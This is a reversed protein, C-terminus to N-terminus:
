IAAEPYKLVAQKYGDSARIGQKLAEISVSYNQRLDLIWSLQTPVSNVLASISFTIEMTESSPPVYKWIGKYSQPLDSFRSVTRYIKQRHDSGQLVYSISRPFMDAFTSVFTFSTDTHSISIIEPSPSCTVSLIQITHPTPTSDDSLTVTTGATGIFETLELNVPSYHITM